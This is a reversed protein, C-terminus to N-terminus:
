IVPYLWVYEILKRDGLDDHVTGWRRERDHDVTLGVLTRIYRAPEPGFRHAKPGAVRIAVM